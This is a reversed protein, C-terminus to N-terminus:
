KEREILKSLNGAINFDKKLNVDELEWCIEKRKKEHLSKLKTYRHTSETEVEDSRMEKQTVWTAKLEMMEM